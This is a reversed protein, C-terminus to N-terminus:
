AQPDKWELARERVAAWAPDDLRPDKALTEQMDRRAADLLRVDRILDAAHLDTFGAQRLGLFEGPGRLRLDAEAIDFGSTHECLVRLREMGEKTKPTGLLYCFSPTDGRGVRGRLQHLQTLGFQGADEIVMSVANPCDVGVEIVTTSVLVDVSGERFRTMVADKERGPMRGHLVALRLGALPGAALEEAHSTVAKLDAKDSDEVLPCVYYAQLGLAAKERLVKHLKPLNAPTVRATKVPSRGPPLEDIVSVDMGGYVTIALTRPIPTATMHLVDPVVGKRALAARQLVGFRHQEDIIVLGLRHFATTDQILAHTGVLVDCAGSAARERAAAADPSSGTLLDVRLGAPELMRRLTLAHQEALIETPAMLATQWGGDSAAAAAHLAVVTKGCGVDGQLLRVMPRPSAMDTLIDSIVRNQSKTLPFPLSARFRAKAPGSVKHRVGRETAIRAARSWLIGAQIGLLEEYAFRARAQRGEEMSGPFHAQRLAEARPPFGHRELLAPPLTEALDGAADLAAAVCRRVLHQTLGAALPYVPVVRGTDLPDGRTGDLLEHEPNKLVPGNRMGVTGTFIGRTGPKLTSALYERGFWTAEIEGSDDRLLAVALAAGRRMRVTRASVVEAQVTAMDGERLAAIPTFSTRDQYERPFHGLLGGISTIGLGAFLEARRPGVGPLSVIPEPLVESFM